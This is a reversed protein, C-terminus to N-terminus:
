CFILNFKDVFFIGLAVNVGAHIQLKVSKNNKEHYIPLKINIRIKMKDITIPNIFKMQIEYTLTGLYLKIWCM